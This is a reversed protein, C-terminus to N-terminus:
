GLLDPIEPRPGKCRGHSEAVERLRGLPYTMAFSKKHNLSSLGFPSVLHEHGKLNTSITRSAAASTKGASGSQTDTSSILAIREDLWASLDIDQALRRIVPKGSLHYDM